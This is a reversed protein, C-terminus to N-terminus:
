KGDEEKNFLRAWNVKTFEVDYFNYVALMDMQSRDMKMIKKILLLDHLNDELEKVKNRLNDIYIHTKISRDPTNIRVFEELEKIKSKLEDTTPEEPINGYYDRIERAEGKSLGFGISKMPDADLATIHDPFDISLKESECNWFWWQDGMSQPTSHSYTIGLASMQKMAHADPTGQGVSLRLHKLKIM